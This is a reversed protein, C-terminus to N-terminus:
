RRSWGSFRLRWIRTPSIPLASVIWRRPLGVLYRSIRFCDPFLSCRNPSPTGFGCNRRSSQVFRYATSSVTGVTWCLVSPAATADAASRMWKTAGAPLGPRRVRTCFRPRNGMNVTVNGNLSVRAPSETTLKGGGTGYLTIIGHATAVATFIGPSAAVVPLQLSTNGMQLTTRRARFQTLKVTVNVQSPSVMLSTAAVGDFTVGGMLNSGFLTIMEGPSIPGIAFTAANTAASIQPAGTSFQTCTETLSHARSGDSGTGSLLEAFTQLPATNGAKGM